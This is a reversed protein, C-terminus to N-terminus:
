GIVAGLCIEAFVFLGDVPTAQRIRLTRRRTGTSEALGGAASSNRGPCGDGSEVPTATEVSRGVVVVVGWDLRREGVASRPGSLASERVSEPGAFKTLVGAEGAGTVVAVPAFVGTLCCIVDGLCECSRQFVASCGPRWVCRLTAGRRVVFGWVAVCDAEACFRGAIAQFRRLGRLSMRGAAVQGFRPNGVVESSM